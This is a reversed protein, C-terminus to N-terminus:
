SVKIRSNDEQTYKMLAFTDEDAKKILEVLGDLKDRDIM